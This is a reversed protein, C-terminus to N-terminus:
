LSHFGIQPMQSIVISAGINNLIGISIGFPIVAIHGGFLAGYAYRICTTQSLAGFLGGHNEQCFCQYIGTMSSDQRYTKDINAWSLYSSDSKMM